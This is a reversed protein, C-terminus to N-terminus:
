VICKKGKANQKVIEEYITEAQALIFCELTLYPHTSVMQTVTIIFWKKYKTFKFNIFTKIYSNSYVM